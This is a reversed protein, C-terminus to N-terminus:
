HGGAYATVTAAGAAAASAQVRLRSLGRVDVIIWGTAAAALATLDGSAGVILGSPATYDAAASAITSYAGGTHPQISVIFADLAQVTPSVQIMIRELDRVDVDLVTTNGTAAVSLALNEARLIRVRPQLTIDENTQAAEVVPAVTASVCLVVAAILRM